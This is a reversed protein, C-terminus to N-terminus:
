LSSDVSLKKDELISHVTFHDDIWSHKGAVLSPWDIAKLKEMNIVEFIQITRMHMIKVGIM